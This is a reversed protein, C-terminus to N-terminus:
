SVLDLAAVQPQRDTVRLREVPDQREREPSTSTVPMASGPREHRSTM